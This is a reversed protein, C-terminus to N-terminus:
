ASQYVLRQEVEGCVYHYLFTHVEQIRATSDSPVSVVIDAAAARGGGRGTFAITKMEKEKAATIARIINESNGSTSLAWLVGGVEGLGEVQRSFVTEFEFDNSWATTVAPDTGLAFAKYAPRNVHFRGILEGAIHMADSASGGNGCLLVSKRNGLASVVAEVARDLPEELNAAVVDELLRAGDVLYQSVAM